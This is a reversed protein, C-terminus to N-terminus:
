TQPERLAAIAAMAQQPTIARLCEYLLERRPCTRQKCPSCALEQRLVVWRGGLPGTAVPDTSGFVAVGPTGLGAALHMAGSDNALVMGAHGLLHMLQRLGTRGALNVAGPVGAVAAAATAAEGSTGIAAVAGHQGAWWQAVARFSAAPWQKAPGYAAGPALVLLRGPRALLEALGEFEGPRLNVQPPPYGLEWRAPGCAAALELYYRAEHLRAPGHARPWPPLRYQLLAARGRGARGIRVPVRRWLDWASGFSNPLIVAAGARLERLRALAEGGLRRGAFPVVTQVWPVARWLEALKAPCLVLLPVGAPLGQRLQWVGPLSMLTDGLWNTARVLLGGGLELRGWDLLPGTAPPAGIEPRYLDPMREM